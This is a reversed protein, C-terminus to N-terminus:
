RTAYYVMSVVVGVLALIQLWLIDHNTAWMFILMLALIIPICIKDVRPLQKYEMYIKKLM